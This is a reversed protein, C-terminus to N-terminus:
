VRRISTPSSAECVHHGYRRSSGRGSMAANELNVWPRAGCNRARASGALARPARAPDHRERLCRNCARWSPASSAIHCTPAARSARRRFRVGTASALCSSLSVALGVGAPDGPYPQGSSPPSSRMPLPFVPGLRVANRAARACVRRFLSVRRCPRLRHIVACRGALFGGAVLWESSRRGGGGCAGGPALRHPIARQPRARRRPATFAISYRRRAHSGLPKLAFISHVLAFLGVRCPPRLGLLVSSCDLLVFSGFSETLSLPIARISVCCCPVGILSGCGRSACGAPLVHSCQAPAGFCKLIAVSRIKQRVCVRTVSWVGIGGFFSLSSASSASFNEARAPELRNSRRHVSVIARERLSEPPLGCPRASLRDGGNARVKLSHYDVRQRGRPPRRESDALDM